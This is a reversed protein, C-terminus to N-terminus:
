FSSRQEFFSGATTNFVLMLVNLQQSRLYIALEDLFRAKVFNRHGHLRQMPMTAREICVPLLKIAFIRCTSCVFRYFRTSGWWVRLM